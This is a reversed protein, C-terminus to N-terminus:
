ERQDHPVSVTATGPASTNGFADACLVTITYVRGTGLGNREARLNLKLDGAIVRDGDADPPENSAVPGIKCSIPAVGGSTTASVVVPIMKHNPPWLVNPTATLATITPPVSITVKGIKNGTFETFWLNGDPGATIDKPYSDATPISFETVAGSTTIRGVKHTGGTVFWLNGDPAATIGLPSSGSGVPYETITGATTIKGIRDSWPETFWLNGDPGATIGYPCSNPTPVPFETITGSPTIQGIRNGVCEAFWVNNDPGAAIGGQPQSGGTPIPFEGTVVGATTMRGIRNGFREAFWLNGDPGATIDIPYGSGLLPFETVVGTPTIRGITQGFYGAFWVNNDNAPGATIGGPGSVVPFETIVGAPTIRGIQNVMTFWLNGDPGRTIDMPRGSATPITYETITVQAPCVFAAALMLGAGFLRVELM